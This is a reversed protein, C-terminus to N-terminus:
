GADSDRSPVQARDRLLAEVERVLRDVLALLDEPRGQVSVTRVTRSPDSAAVPSLRVLAEIRIREADGSYRGCVVVAVGLADMATGVEAGELWLQVDRPPLMTPKGPAPGAMALFEARDIAEADRRDRLSRDLLEPIGDTLWGFVADGGVREFPLLVAKWKTGKEVSAVPPVPAEPSAATRLPEEPRDASRPGPPANKRAAGWGVALATGLVLVAAVWRLRSSRPGEARVLDPISSPGPTAELLRNAEAVVEGADAFRQSRERATMREFLAVVGKPTRPILARIPIPSEERLRRFLRVPDEDVFPVRGTLMEYLVVGLSYLDSRGDLDGGACQEPSSYEPTGVYAGPAFSPPNFAFGTLGFDVLRIQGGAEIMINSSTVDRHVLGARHVVGLAEAVTRVVQLAGHPSFQRYSRVVDALTTGHVFQMAVYLLGDQNGVSHVRCIAPHDLQAVAQAEQVFREQFQPDAGLHPPLIKLAVERGLEEDLARVVTGMEGRHVLEVM